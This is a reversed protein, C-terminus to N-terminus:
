NLCIHKMEPALPTIENINEKLYSTHTPSGDGLLTVSKNYNSHIIIYCYMCDICTIYM